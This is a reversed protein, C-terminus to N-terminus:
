KLVGKIRLRIKELVALPASFNHDTQYNHGYREDKFTIGEFEKPKAYRPIVHGHLHRKENGLFAYNLLDPQFIKQIAKQLGNLIVFLEEQEEVTADTLDLADERNCWIVCRGLFGQNPHLFISWHQYDKIKYKSFGKSIIM